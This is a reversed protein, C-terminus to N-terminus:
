RNKKWFYYFLVSAFMYLYFISFLLYNFQRNEIGIAQKYLSVVIAIIILFLFVLIYVFWIKM